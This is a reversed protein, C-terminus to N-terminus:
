GVEIVGSMLKPLLIDRSEKLFLNQDKLNKILEEIPSAFKEYAIAIENTPTVLKIQKLHIPGFNIQASGNAYSEMLEKFKPNTITHKILWKGYSKDIPRMRILSTNLCLPLHRKRITVVRGLTGSTSIVHDNEQLLFHSYKSNVENPDLYQVKTFDVEDDKIVRINLFPIGEERYQTNRLGPGEKFDIIKEFPNRQWGDPLGTEKKIKLQKGNINFKYFWEEYTRQALEELLSIRNLNNDILDDYSSLVTAIKIQTLLPPLLIKVDKIKYLGLKGQAAGSAIIQFYEKMSNPLLIYKLFRADLLDKKAILKVANETLNAKDFEKTIYAVDGINAGVITIVVDGENVIYRKVFEFTDDNIYSPNDFNIKGFGIDRARLYPHSTKEDILEHGKPLRKGGKIFCIEDLRKEKWGKM